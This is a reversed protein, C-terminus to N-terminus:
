NILVLQNRNRNIKVKVEKEQEELDLLVSGQLMANVRESGSTRWVLDANLTYVNSHGSKFMAVYRYEILYKIAKAVTQRSYGIANGIALQSAVLCNDKGMHQYMFQFVISATPNTTTLVRLAKIGTPDSLQIFNTNLNTASM